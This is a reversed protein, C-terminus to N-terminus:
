VLREAAEVFADEARWAVAVDARDEADAERRETAAREAVDVDDAGVFDDAARPRELLAEARTERGRREEHLERAFSFAEIRLAETRFAIPGPAPSRPM